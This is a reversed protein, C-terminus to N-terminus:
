ISNSKSYVIGFFPESLRDLALAEVRLGTASKYKKELEHGLKNLEKILPPYNGLGSSELSKPYDEDAWKLVAKANKLAAKYGEAGFEKKLADVAKQENKESRDDIQFDDEKKPSSYLMPNGSEDYEIM